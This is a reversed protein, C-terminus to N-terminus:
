RAADENPPTAFPAIVEIGGDPLRKVELIGDVAALLDGHSSDDHGQTSAVQQEISATAAAVEAADDPRLAQIRGWLLMLVLAFVAWATIPQIIKQSGPWVPPRKTQEIKRTIVRESDRTLAVLRESPTIKPASQEPMNLTGVQMSRQQGPLPLGPPM